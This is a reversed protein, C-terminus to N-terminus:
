KRALIFYWSMLIGASIQILRGDKLEETYTTMGKERPKPLNVDIDFRLYEFNHYGLGNFYERVHPIPYINYFGETYSSGNKPKTFDRVEIKTDVEGEFFLSTIAIWEPNLCSFKKIPIKYEPLWSLTQFSLVGDYKEDSSLNYLDGQKLRCRPNNNKKFYNNGFKVLEKNLEIGTFNIRPFKESLYSINAGAGSGIDVVNQDYKSSLIGHNELWDSFVITSRYVNKFQNFHYEFAKGPLDLWESNRQIIKKKNKM